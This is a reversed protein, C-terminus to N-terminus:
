RESKIYITGSPCNEKLYTMFEESPYNYPLYVNLFHVANGFVRDQQTAPSELMGDRCTTFMVSKLNTCDAFAGSKISKIRTPLSVSTISTNGAFARERIYKVTEPFVVEGDECSPCALLTKGSKTLLMNNESKYKKNKPAVTLNKLATCYEVPNGDISSVSYSIYLSELGRCDYFALKAITKLGKNVNVSTIRSNGEFAYPAITRTSKRLSVDGVAYGASILTTYDKSYIMGNYINFNVASSKVGDKYGIKELSNCYSFAGEGISETETGLIVRKLGTAGYFAAKGISKVSDPLNIEELKSFAFAGDGIAEVTYEQKQYTVRADISCCTVASKLTNGTIIVVATDSEETADDDSVVRYTIRNKTFTLPEEEAMTIVRPSALVMCLVAILVSKILMHNNKM